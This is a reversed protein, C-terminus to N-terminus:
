REKCKQHIKDFYEKKSFFAKYLVDIEEKTCVGSAQSRLKESRDFATNILGCPYQDCLGCNEIEKKKVCTRLEVYACKNEPKCGYCEMDQVPFDPDRLGLRVWLKKVTELDKINGSKTASYRPCHFCNDGCVATLDM